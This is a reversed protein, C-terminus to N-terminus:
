AGWYHQYLMNSIKWSVLMQKERREPKQWSAVLSKTQKNRYDESQWMLTSHVSHSEVQKNRYDEDQWLEKVTKSIKQCTEEPQNIGKNWVKIGPFKKGKKSTTTGQKAKSIKECTEPSAKFGKRNGVKGLKAVRMKERVEATHDIKGAIKSLNYQPKMIDICSQELAILDEEKCYIFAQFEMLSKDDLKDYARQIPYTGYEGNRLKRFHTSKRGKIDKSSGIYFKGNAKNVIRYIGCNSNVNPPIHMLETWTSTMLM